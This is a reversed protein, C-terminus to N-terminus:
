RRYLGPRNARRLLEKYRESIRQQGIGTIEAIDDQSCGNKLLRLIEEDDPSRLAAILDILKCHELTGVNELVGSWLDSTSLAPAYRPLM